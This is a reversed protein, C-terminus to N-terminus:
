GGFREKQANYNQLVDGITLARNYIQICALDGAMHEGNLWGRGIYMGAPHANYTGLTGSTDGSDVLEGNKYVFARDNDSDYVGAFHQWVGDTMEMVYSGDGADDITELRWELNNTSSNRGVFWGPTSTNAGWMNVVRGWADWNGLDPRIWASVSFESTFKYPNASAITIYDSSGDFDFYGDTNYTPANTLTGHNESSSLDSWTSGAGPYSKKYAADVYLVLGDTQINNGTEATIGFSM